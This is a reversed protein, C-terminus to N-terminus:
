YLIFLTMIQDMLSFLIFACKEELLSDSEKMGYIRCKGEREVSSSHVYKLKRAELSPYIQLLPTFSLIFSTNSLIFVFSLKAPLILTSLMNSFAFIFIAQRREDESKEVKGSLANMVRLAWSKSLRDPNSKSNDYLSICERM